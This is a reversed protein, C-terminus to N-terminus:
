TSLLAAAAEDLVWTAGPRRALQAPRRRPDRDTGLVDRLM